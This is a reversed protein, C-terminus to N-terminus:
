LIIRYWYEAPVTDSPIRVLRYSEVCGNNNPADTLLASCDIHRFTWYPNSIIREVRM